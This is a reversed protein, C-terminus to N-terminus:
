EGYEKYLALQKHFVELDSAIYRTNVPEKELYFVRGTCDVGILNEVDDRGIIKYQQREFITNYSDQLRMFEILLIPEM